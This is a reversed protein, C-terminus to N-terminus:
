YIKNSVVKIDKYIVPKDKFYKLFFITGLREMLFGQLRSQYKIDTHATTRYKNKNNTVYNYVDEDSHLNNEDNFKDLVGFIFNHYNNFDTRNMIFMNCPFLVNINNYDMSYEPYYKDIINECNILDEINHCGAYQQHMNCHMPTPLTTENTPNDFYRRYHNLGVWEDNTKQYIDHIVYGEAYAFQIPKLENDALIWPFSYNNKLEKASIITYEGNKKYENFDTHTAIYIM